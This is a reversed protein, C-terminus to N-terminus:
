KETAPNGFDVTIPETTLISQWETRLQESRADKDYPTPGPNRFAFDDMPEKAWGFRVSLEKKGRPQYTGYGNQLPFQIVYTIRRGQWPRLEIVPSLSTGGWRESLYKKRGLQEWKQRSFDLTISEGDLELPLTPLSGDKARVFAFDEGILYVPRLCKNEFMVRLSLLGSVEDYNHLEVSTDPPGTEAVEPDRNEASPPPRQEDSDTSRQERLSQARGFDTIEDEPHSSSERQVNAGVRSQMRDRGNQPTAGFLAYAAVVIGLLVLSVGAQGPKRTEPNPPITASMRKLIGCGVQITFGLRM